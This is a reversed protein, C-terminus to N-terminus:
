VQHIWKMQGPNRREVEQAAGRPPRNGRFGAWLNHPHLGETIFGCLPPVPWNIKQQNASIVSFFGDFLIPIVPSRVDNLIPDDNQVVCSYKRTSPRVLVVARHFENILLETLIDKFPPRNKLFYIREHHHRSSVLSSVSAQTSPALAARLLTSQCSAPVGAL